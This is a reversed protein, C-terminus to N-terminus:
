VATNSQSFFNDEIGPQTLGFVNLDVDGQVKIVLNRMYSAGPLLHFFTEEGNHDVIVFESREANIQIQFFFKEGPM